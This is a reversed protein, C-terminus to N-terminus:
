RRRPAAPAAPAASPSTASGWGRRRFRGDYEQIPPLPAYYALELLQNTPREALELARALLVVTRWSPNDREGSELRHLYAKDMGSRRALETLSMGREGFRNRLTRLLAGFADPAAGPGDRM